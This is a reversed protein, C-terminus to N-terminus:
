SPNARRYPDGAASRERMGARDAPQTLQGMVQDITFSAAKQREFLERRTALFQAVFGQMPM